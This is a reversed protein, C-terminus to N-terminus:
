TPVVLTSPSSASPTTPQSFAAVYATNIIPQEDVLSLLPWTKSSVHGLAVIPVPFHSDVNEVMKMEGWLARVEGETPARLEGSQANQQASSFQQRRQLLAEEDNAKGDDDIVVTTTAPM